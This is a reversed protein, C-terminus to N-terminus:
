CGGDFRCGGRRYVQAQVQALSALVFSPYPLSFPASPPPPPLLSEAADDRERREREFLISGYEAKELLGARVLEGVETAVAAPDQNLVSALSASSNAADSMIAITGLLKKHPSSAIRKKVLSRLLPVGSGEQAGFYEAHKSVASLSRVALANVVATPIM